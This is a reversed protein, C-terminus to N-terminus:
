IFAGLSLLTPKHSYLSNNKTTNIKQCSYLILQKQIQWICMCTSSLTRKICGKYELLFSLPMYTQHSKKFWMFVWQLKANIRIRREELHAHVVDHNIIGNQLWASSSNKMSSVPRWSLPLFVALHSRQPARFPCIERLRRKRRRSGREEWRRHKEFHGFNQWALFFSLWLSVKTDLLSVSSLISSLFYFYSFSPQFIGWLSMLTSPLPLHYSRGLLCGNKGHAETLM